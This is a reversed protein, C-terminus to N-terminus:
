FTNGVQRYHFHHFQNGGHFFFEAYGGSSGHSNGSCRGSSSCYHFLLVLEFYDQSGGALLFYVHDFNNAFQGAQAQFFRFVQDVASRGRDLFTRVLGFGFFHLFLLIFTASLYGQLLVSSAQLFYPLHYELLPWRETSASFTINTDNRAPS